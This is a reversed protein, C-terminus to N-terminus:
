TSGLCLNLFTLRSVHTAPERVM